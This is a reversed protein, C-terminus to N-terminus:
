LSRNLFDLGEVQIQDTWQWEMDSGETGYDGEWSGFVLDFCEHEELVGFDGPGHPKLSEEDCDRPSAVEVSAGPDCVNEHAKRPPEGLSQAVPTDLYKLFLDLIHNNIKWYQQIEQLALLCMQAQHEAIRLRMQDCRQITITHICLASFLGTVLHMQGYRLTRQVLMDEAIRSIASAAAVAAQQDSERRPKIFNHRHILIKIQDRIKALEVMKIAYTVHEATRSGLSSDTGSEDNDSTLDSACLPEIDCDDDRIRSPLGLSAAAQRERVQCLNVVLATKQTCGSATRKNHTADDRVESPRGRWFSLLFLSQVLTIRDEEWDTHFLLRAKTYFSLKADARDKFGMSTIAQSDCYTVGIFLMAQFLIHPVEFAALKKSFELRDVIPFCPHFWTFYAQLAPMCQAVVPLELAKEDNLYRCIGIRSSSADTPASCPSDAISFLVRSKGGIGAQDDDPTGNPQCVQRTEPVLTLCNSEGFFFVAPAHASGTSPSPSRLNFRAADTSADLTPVASRKANCERCARKARPKRTPKAKPEPEVDQPVESQPM